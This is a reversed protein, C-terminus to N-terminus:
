DFAEGAGEPTHEAYDFESGRGQAIYAFHLRMEDFCRRLKKDSINWLFISVRPGKPYPDRKRDSFPFVDIGNELTDGLRPSVAISPWSVFGAGKLEGDYKSYGLIGKATVLAGLVCEKKELGGFLGKKTNDLVAIIDSEDVSVTKPTDGEAYLTKDTATFSRGSVSLGEIDPAANKLLTEFKMAFPADGPFFVRGSKLQREFKKVVARVEEANITVGSFENMGPFESGCHKNNKM